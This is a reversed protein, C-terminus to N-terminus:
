EEHGYVMIFDKKDLLSKQVLVDDLVAEDFMHHKRLDAILSNLSSYKKRYKKGTKLDVHLAAPREGYELLALLRTVEM